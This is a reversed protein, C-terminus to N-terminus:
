VHARGIKLIKNSGVNVTYQYTNKSTTSEDFKPIMYQYPDIEKTYYRNRINDRVTISEFGRFGLGQQHIVANYYNYSVSEQQSGNHWTESTSLVWLPGNFNVYPFIAGNGKSYGYSNLKQYDFRSEVGLSNVVSSLMHERTDDRPFNYKFIKGNKLALMQCFVNRSNINTPLLKAHSNGSGFSSTTTLTNPKGNKTLYTKFELTTYSILDTLGDGNIDQLMFGYNDLASKQPGTFNAIYLYGNDMLYYISWNTTNDAKPSLLLDLLGDGNFEGVMLDRGVLTSKKLSTYTAIKKLSYTTGSVEFTYISTGADNIHCIDSKGDGNYDLVFLRDTNDFAAQPNPQSNGVFDVIHPFDYKEYLKTGSELNFLYCKSTIGSNGIPNHSSVALVEMKGNGNFDGTFYFKPHISKGGDADTLVTPFDFTRTYIPRIGTISSGAYVKFTVRDNGNNITNNVKIVEEEYRGDLDACFIDVFGPETILNPMPSAMADALGAYLFIEETGNYTNFYRNKSKSWPTESWISNWYPNKNPLSIVGDDDSGYDFKGKTVRLLDPSNGADYWQTLQVESRNYTSNTNGTGYNFKLPNFYKGQASFNIESILSYNNATYAIEYSHLVQTGHKCHIKSLRRNETMHLGGVTTFIPDPRTTQYDFDISAGGNDGYTIRSIKQIYPTNLYTYNITNGSPDTLKTLPYELRGDTSTSFGYVGKNGNPYLVQFHTIANNALHAIAIIKGQESEYRISSANSSLRILRMGDLYFADDNTISIGNPNGDFYASRNARTIKSIGALSWGAGLIGNGGGANYALSLQPQIGKPGPYVQIPVQLTASGNPGHGTIVPIEGVSKSKDINTSVVSITSSNLQPAALTESLDTIKKTPASEGALTTQKIEVPPYLANIVSDEWQTIREESWNDWDPGSPQIAKQAKLEASFTFASLLLIAFICVLPLHKKM